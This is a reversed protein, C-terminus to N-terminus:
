SRQNCFLSVEQNPSVEIM